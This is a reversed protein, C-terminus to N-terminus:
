GALHRTLATAFIALVVLVVGGLWGGLLLLSVAAAPNRRRLADHLQLMFRSRRAPNVPMGRDFRESFDRAVQYLADVEEDGLLAPPVDARVKGRLSERVARMRREAPISMLVFFALVGLVIDRSWFALMGLGAVACVRFGTELMPHRGFLVLDFLRGGDFPVLPLLNIANIGLLAYGTSTLWAEHMAAGFVLVPIALLLGPVPGALLVLGEKVPSGDTSRGSAAAGFFPIFFIRTDQYGSLRMAVWHGLEHLMLVGAVIAVDVVSRNPLAFIGFLVLSGILLLAVHNSSTRGTRFLAHIQEREADLGAQGAAGADMSGGSDWTEV